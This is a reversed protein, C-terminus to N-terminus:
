FNIEFLLFNILCGSHTGISCVQYISPLFPTDLPFALLSMARQITPMQTELWPSLHKKAYFIAQTPQRSRILEIFEQIRLNFELTSQIIWLTPPYFKRSFGKPSRIFPSVKAKKLLSKNENCWQLCEMCSHNKLSDEIRKSSVFLEADILPQLNSNSDCVGEVWVELDMKAKLSGILSNSTKLYGKRMLYDLIIRFLRVQSWEVFAKDDLFVIEHLQQLHQIRAKIRKTFVQEEEYNEHLKFPSPNLNLTLTNVHSPSFLLDFTLIAGKAEVRTAKGCMTVHYCICRAPLHQFISRSLQTPLPHGDSQHTWTWAIKSQQPINKTTIWMSGPFIILYKAPFASSCTCNKCIFTQTIGCCDISLSLQVIQSSSAHLLCM